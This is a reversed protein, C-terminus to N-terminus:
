RWTGDAQCTYGNIVTGPPYSQGEYICDAQVFLPIFALVAIVLIKM